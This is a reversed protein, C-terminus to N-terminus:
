RSQRLTEHWAFDMISENFPAAVTKRHRPWEEIPANFLSPGYIGLVETLITLALILCERIPTKGYKYVPRVFERWRSFIDEIAAPDAFHLHIGGPSVLAWVPGYRATPSSKELFQWNRHSFRIMDPYSGWRIPIFALLKWVLPQVVVWLYGNPDLPTRVVPVSLARARRVNTELCTLTWSVYILAIGLLVSFIMTPLLAIAIQCVRYDCSVHYDSSPEKASLGQRQHEGTVRHYVGAHALGVGDHSPGLDKSATPAHNSATLQSPLHFVGDKYQMLSDIVPNGLVPQMTAFYPECTCRVRRVHRLDLHTSWEALRAGLSLCSCRALGVTGCFPLTQYPCISLDHM